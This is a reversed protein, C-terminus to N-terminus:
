FCFIWFCHKVKTPIPASTPLPETKPILTPTPIAEPNSIKVGAVAPLTKKGYTFTFEPLEIYDGQLNTASLLVTYTGPKLNDAKTLNIGFRSEANAITSRTLITQNNQKLELTVKSGVTTIGYFSPKTSLLVLPFWTKSFNAQHTNILLIKEETDTQNGAKDLVRVKWKYGGNALKDENRKSSVFINDDTYRIYRNTEDLITGAGAGSPDHPIDDIYTYYEKSESKILIQYKQIGATTDKSKTFTFSPLNLTTYLNDAQATQFTRTAGNDAVWSTTPAGTDVTFSDNGYLSSDTSNTYSDTAKVRISHSGDSLATPIAISFNSTGTVSTTTWSGSDLSYSVSSLSGAAITSATGILTPKNNSNPDPSLATLTVPIDYYEYAGIDPASGQIRSVGLIDTTVDSLAVGANIAPSGKKLHFDGNAADVFLPDLSIDHAGPAAVGYKFNDTNNWILNYDFIAGSVGGGIGITNNISINNKAISGETGNDFDIGCPTNYIINNYVVANQSYAVYIGLTFTKSVEGTGYVINNKAICNDSYYFFIGRRLKINNPNTFKFGSISIYNMNFVYFGTQTTSLPQIIPIGTGSWAQYTIYNGSTGPNAPTVQENYTVGGKVNVTDGAMM